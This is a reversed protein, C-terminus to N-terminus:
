VLILQIHESHYKLTSFLMIQKTTTMSKLSAYCKSLVKYRKDKQGKTITTVNTHKTDIRLTMGKRGENIRRQKIHARHILARVFMNVM